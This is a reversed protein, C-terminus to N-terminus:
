WPSTPPPNVTSSWPTSGPTTRTSACNSTPTVTVGRTDNDTISVTAARTTGTTVSVLRPQTAGLEFRVREGDDDIDDDVPTFTFSKDTEGSAFRVTTPLSAYDADSANQENTRVIAIDVTREPDPRLTLTVEVTGAEGVTYSSSAFSVTVAPVDDPDDLIAVTAESDAGLTLGPVSGIVLRVSEDDDDLDDDAASFTLSKRTEGSAFTLALSAPDIAYDNSTADGQGTATLPITVSREPDPSLTVTM